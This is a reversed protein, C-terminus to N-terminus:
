FKIEQRTTGFVGKPYVDIDKKSKEIAADVKKAEEEPFNFREELEHMRAQLEDLKKKIDEKEQDDFYSEPDKINENVQKRFNETLEDVATKASYKAHILDQRVNHVWRTVRSICHYINEHDRREFKMCEGAREAAWLTRKANDMM